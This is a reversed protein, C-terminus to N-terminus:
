IEIIAPLKKPGVGNIIFKLPQEIFISQDFSVGVSGTFKPFELWFPYNFQEYIEVLRELISDKNDNSLSTWSQRGNEIFKSKRIQDFLKAGFMKTIKGTIESIKEEDLGDFHVDETVAKVNIFWNKM